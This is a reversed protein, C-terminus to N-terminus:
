HREHSVSLAAKELRDLLLKAGEITDTILAVDDAFEVDAIKEAGIRRSRAPRLTFGSDSDDDDITVTMIYDIMIIFLYPALTDGQLVGALIDFIETIGDATIVNAKTSTYIGEILRVIAEPIGYAKLIKMLLGRHVSDFAKKFDIFVMTAKLNKARAGEMIRRLALIHSTTSRGPRFGNQNDRLVEELSPKMRNLLMKNLTKSVISTLSIGRYNDTKTLDGKKPVPVINSLKWQDPMLGDCLADNCFKLIVDDIDVRKMVEPSIGDDGYAKGEVIQKKALRLEEITFPGDEINLPPHISYIGSRFVITLSQPHSDLYGLSTSGGTRLVNQQAAGKWSDVAPIQGGEKYCAKLLDKKTAVEERKEECPEQHYQDKALFLGRRASDVRPDSSPDIQKQRTKKPLLSKNAAENAVMLKGYSETAGDDEEVLGSFRNWVEIAYKKQLEGDSKLASYDYNVKKPPRHGKRFSVKIKCVVVRHDSGLSQFTNYVETNKLSNKWKRRILIYDIQGKNLTGDSLFTWRKNVKKRFRINTIEMDCELATDRLLEGNRNTRTHFYWRSDEESEKGLRANMDGETILLHHARAPVDNM